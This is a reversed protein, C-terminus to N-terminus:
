TDEIWRDWSSVAEGNWIPPKGIEVPKNKLVINVGPELGLDHGTFCPPDDPQNLSASRIQVVETIEGKCFYTTTEPLWVDGYQKLSCVAQRRVKGNKGALTVREANWGREPDIYWTMKAAKDFNATVIYRADQKLQEWSVIEPPDWHGIPWGQWIAKFGIDSKLSESTPYVGVALIDKVRVTYAFREPPEGNHAWLGCNPTTEKYEWCGDANTMYLLPYKQVGRRTMPEFITWGEKDGRHEFITDGNKAFRSVFKLEADHEGKPLVSWDIRGSIVCPKRHQEFALLASPKSPRGGQCMMALFFGVWPVLNLGM